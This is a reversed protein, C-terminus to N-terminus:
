KLQGEIDGFIYGQYFDKLDMSLRLDAHWQTSAKIRSRFLEENAISGASYFVCNIGYCINHQLMLYAERKSIRFYSIYPHKERIASYFFRFDSFSSFCVIAGRDIPMFPLGDVLAIIPDVLLPTKEPTPM